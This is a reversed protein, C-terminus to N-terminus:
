KQAPLAVVPAPEAAPAAKKAKGHKPRPAVSRLGDIHEFLEPMVPNWMSDLIFDVGERRAHKSAPVFDADGAVLVIQDVLKKEALLAIDLGIKLDVVKQRAYYQFDDDTLDAWLKKGDLLEKLRGNKLRWEANREDLHGLRLATKRQRRLEDHLALRFIAQDSKKMDVSKKLIPSHLKKTLPPCDYFFIRYLSGTEVRSPIRDGKADRKKPPELHKLCMSFMTKAVIVPDQRDIDPYVSSFRRVFFGGDVLIATRM